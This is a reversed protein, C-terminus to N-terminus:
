RVLQKCLQMCQLKHFWLFVIERFFDSLTEHFVVYVLRHEVLKHEVQVLKHEVLELEVLEVLKHEVQELEVQRHQVLVLQV